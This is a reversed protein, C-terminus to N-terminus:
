EIELYEKMEDVTAIDSVLVFSSADEIPIAGVHAATINVDGTRYETEKDGKIGTVSNGTAIEQCKQYYYKANDINENPRKGTGGVAWSKATKIVDSYDSKIEELAQNFGNYDYTSEITSNEIPTEAVDIYFTMTSLIEPDSGGIVSGTNPDITVSRGKVIILDACCLGSAALMQETLEALVCGDNTITCKNFVGYSDAKKYRVFATCAAKDIRLLENGNCCSFLIFRSKKDYQKANVIIHNKNYFDINVKITSQLDM